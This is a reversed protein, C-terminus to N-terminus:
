TSTIQKNDQFVIFIPDLEMIQNITTSTKVPNREVEATNLTFSAALHDRYRATFTFQKNWELKILFQGLEDTVFRQDSLGETIIIPGNPLAKKGIRKSNPDDPVEFQPEMVRISVFIQYDVPKEKPVENDPVDM